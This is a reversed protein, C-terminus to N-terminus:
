KGPEPLCLNSAANGPDVIARWDKTLKDKDEDLGLLYRWLRRALKEAQVTVTM